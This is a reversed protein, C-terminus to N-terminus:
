VREILADFLASPLDRSREVDAVAADILPGLREVRALYEAGNRSVNKEM